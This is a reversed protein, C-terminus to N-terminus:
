RSPILWTFQKLVWLLSVIYGSPLNGKAGLTLLCLQKYVNFLCLILTKWIKQHMLFEQGGCKIDRFKDLGRVLLGWPYPDLKLQRIKWCAVRGCALIFDSWHLDEFAEDLEEHDSYAYFEQATPYLGESDCAEQM